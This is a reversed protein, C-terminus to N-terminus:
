QEFLQSGAALPASSGGTGGQVDNKVVGAVGIKQAAMTPSSVIATFSLFVAITLAVLRKHGFL